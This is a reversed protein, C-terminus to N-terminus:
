AKFCDTGVGVTKFCDIGVGVTKVGKDCSRLVTLGLVSLRVGRIM